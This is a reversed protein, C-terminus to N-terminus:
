FTTGLKLGARPKDGGFALFTEVKPLGGRVFRLGIGPTTIFSDQAIERLSPGVAGRDVFAFADLRDHPNMPSWWVQYRWEGQAALMALDRYRFNKQGRLGQSSGLQPLYYIPVGAGSQAFVQTAIGRLAIGNQRTVPLYFRLDGSGVQFDAETASVGHYGSWGAILRTGQMQEGRSRISTYDV